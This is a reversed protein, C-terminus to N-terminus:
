ATEVHELIDKGNRIVVPKGLADVMEQPLQQLVFNDAVLPPADGPFYLVVNGLKMIAALSEWLRKDASPRVVCLRHILGGEIPKLRVNCWQDEAYRLTWYEPESEEVFEGFAARVQERPISVPEEPNGNEEEIEKRDEADV